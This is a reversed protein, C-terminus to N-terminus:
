ARRDALDLPRPWPWNWSWKPSTQHKPQHLAIRQQNGGEDDM